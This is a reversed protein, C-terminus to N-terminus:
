LPLVLRPPARLKLSRSTLVGYATQAARRWCRNNEVRVFHTPAHVGQVSGPVAASGQVMTKLEGRGEVLTDIYSIVQLADGAEPDLAAFKTTHQQM